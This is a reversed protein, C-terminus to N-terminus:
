KKMIGGIYTTVPEFIRPELLDPTLREGISSQMGNGRNM